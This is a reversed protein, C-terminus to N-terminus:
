QPPAAVALGVQDYYWEPYHDKPCLSRRVANHEKVQKVTSASDDLHWHILGIGGCLTRVPDYPQLTPKQAFLGCAGLLWLLAFVAALDRAKKM